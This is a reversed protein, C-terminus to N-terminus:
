HKNEHSYEYVYMCVDSIIDYKILQIAYICVCIIYM